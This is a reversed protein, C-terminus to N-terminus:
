TRRRRTMRGLKGGPRRGHSAGGKGSGEFSAVTPGKSFYRLYVFWAVAPAFVAMSMLQGPTHWMISKPTENRIIEVAYRVPAYLTLLLAFVEGYRHRHRYFIMLAAFIALAAAFSILQSPVLPPSWYGPWTENGIPDIAPPIGALMAHARAAPSGPPFRLFDFAMWSPAPRGWCCGNLFCGLRGFALGIALSPASLDM